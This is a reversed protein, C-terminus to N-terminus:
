IGNTRTPNMGMAAVDRGSVGDAYENHYSGWPTSAPLQPLMFTNFSNIENQTVPGSLNDIAM